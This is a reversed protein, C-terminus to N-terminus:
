YRHLAAAQRWICASSKSRSRHIRAVPAAFPPVYRPVTPQTSGEGRGRSQDLRLTGDTLPPVSQGPPLSLEATAHRPPVFRPTYSLVVPGDGAAAFREIESMAQVAVQGVALRAGEGPRELADRLAANLADLEAFSRRRREPLREFARERHSRTVPSSRTPSSAPSVFPMSFSSGRLVM